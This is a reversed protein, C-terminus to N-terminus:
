KEKKDGSDGGYSFQHVGLRGDTHREKGAFISFLLGLLM